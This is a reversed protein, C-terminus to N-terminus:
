IVPPAGESDAAALPPAEEEMAGSSTESMAGSQVVSLQLHHHGSSSSVALGTAALSPALSYPLSPPWSLKPPAALQEKSYRIGAVTMGGNGAGVTPGPGPGPPSREANAAMDTDEDGVSSSSGHATPVDDDSSNDCIVSKIVRVALDTSFGASAFGKGKGRRGSAPLGADMSEDKVAAAAAPPAVPSAVLNTNEIKDSISRLNAMLRSSIPMHFGEDRFAVLKLSFDAKAPLALFKRM